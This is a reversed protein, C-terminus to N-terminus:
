LTISLDASKEALQTGGSGSFRVTVQLRSATCSSPLSYTLKAKFTGDPRFTAHQALPDIVPCGSFHKGRFRGLWTLETSQSQDTCSQAAVHAASGGGRAVSPPVFHLQTIGITGSCAATGARQTAGDASISAVSALGVVALTVAARLLWM